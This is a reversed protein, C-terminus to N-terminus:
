VTTARKQRESKQLSPFSGSPTLLLSPAMSNISQVKVYPGAPPANSENEDSRGTKRRSYELLVYPMIDYPSLLDTTSSGKSANYAQYKEVM